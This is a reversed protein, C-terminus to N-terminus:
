APGSLGPAQELLQEREDLVKAQQDDDPSRRRAAEADAAYLAHLPSDDALAIRKELHVITGHEPRNQFAVRDVLARMLQIGRGSEATPEAEARGLSDADFGHGRDIVDIACVHDRIRATVEYDDDEMSHELVNTCAETIAIAIDGICDADIKISRLSATLVGRLVPVSMADRPLLLTFSM